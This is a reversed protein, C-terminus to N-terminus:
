RQADIRRPALLEDHGLMRWVTTTLAPHELAIQRLV